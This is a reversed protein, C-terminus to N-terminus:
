QADGKATAGGLRVLLGEAAAQGLKEISAAGLIELVSIEVGLRQRSWNRLEIAVLSDIGVASLPQKLDLEEIPRMLFSFLTAGIEQALFLVSSPENLTGPNSNVTVLFERLGENSNGLDGASTTELNRYLGMRIDRKWICRNADAAIPMTMRLGLGIQSDNIYGDMSSETARAKPASKAIALELSDLLDQEKLCYAATAKLQELHAPEQSVWGVDEIISIDLVSAPLGKGHRYQAFADLFTNAAAYNAQGWHGLLGSFSSFLVFFELSQSAFAEHLNWTGQIKPLNADQWEEYTMNPFSADRLVMSMQLVGSIPYEAQRIVSQVDALNAVSGATIQVTCGAANMEEVFAAHDAGKGGSRSLYIFHRAGHEAMWTSISRGLGGLGGVLLYSVDPRLSLRNNGRSASLQSNDTPFKIVLKGMHQGKQMYRLADEIQAADFFKIPRIPQIAGQRFYEMTREMLRKIVFPRKEAIPAFDVGYFTRNAEFAEMALQGQGIFDRKGIEVMKGFEAVCKWSAHLLDGSLSNLVVDVGTGNTERMVDPLFSSNRSNFIHNRPISFTRMLYEVKEDTGVTAFIKAGVMSCIHIAAIGIGGCASQILVTQDKEIRALDLLSHIVTTYVCPMTAADEFSLNDPIKACLASSTKLVTSYSDGGIIAVRDGVKFSADPGVGTVIGACECGLGNGDDVNGDVVGMSILIDKFNMGAAKVKVSVEDGTLKIEPRQVWRLTKLLGRKGIELTKPAEADTGASLENSVSIWHFRPINIVGKVIAYEFDPDIEQDKSRNQFKGLVDLIRDFTSEDQIDDIELTALDISLENRVSRALGLIQAYQPDSSEVQAPRTLWLMGSSTLSTLYGQLSRFQQESVDTLFAKGELDLVSIIDQDAKPTDSLSSFDVMFGHKTLSNVLRTAAPCNPDTTLVSVKRNVKPEVLPSAIITANTHYPMEEDYIVAEAGAFGAQALEKDWRQPSVYPEEPRGDPEGLWWGPLVGVIFNFWKADSCLEQLLLKGKPQLLKRVNVLTEGLSPTAHLVNTAIILDYSGLEYGQEAPDQGIDLVSYEMGQVNRFREKAKVFFGASIDTYTYSYFMREGFASVLGDLILATTAGTGAGIELIRLNPKNHSLLGLFDNFDWFEVVLDYIKRLKEGEMLLDLAEAEGKFIAESNEFICLIANGVAAADSAEVEKATAEILSLRETSSLTFLSSADDVAEYGHAKAQQVHTSLWKKFKELHPLASPPLDALRRTCEISCLLLLKQVAPYCYKISKRTRLLDKSDLFAIDPKWQLRVGAHPDADVGAADDAAPALHLNRLELVVENGVTAFGNGHVAGRATVTVSSSLQLKLDTKPRKMYIEGFYAPLPMQVFDRSQGKWAAVSFLQIAFDTTTPHLQYVSDNPNVTNTVKAVAFNEVPHTSIDEMGQFKPGYNIGVKSMTQYWRTSSVKRPLDTVKPPESILESDSKGARVQGTCHKTWSTGNHSSVVFEYWASDLSTTLRHPRLSFLIETTTQEHLIMAAKVSMNRITFDETGTVQRIAEGAMAIYAAGPFVIDQNIVHDRIWSADELCLMNRWTPELTSGEFVQCGLLDHRPFKRTRWERSLRGEDWFSEDHHWPYTPLNTLISGGPNVSNLDVPLGKVFLNGAVTLLSTTDDQGRVMTPVYLADPQHKKFIQRLPGALASHPGIELFLNSSTEQKLLKEMTTAFLVPSELNKRWYSANLAGKESIVKNLVTSFFPVEPRSSSVHPELLKQYQEAVETMHHSHYAMDVRLRRAFIDPHSAKIKQIVIDIQNGDGSITTSEPSNECAITVGDTLFGAVGERSIGVAAMAGIRGQQKTVLGRFYAAIIAEGSTIAGSAYAAALEGSSHGIVQSPSINWTRLLNVIAIQVATCLPQSFEAQDLRSETKSKLLERAITWHPPYPLKSLVGDLYQFDKRVSPFDILLKVGMTAWQAGQGTFVFTVAPTTSPTRSPASFELPAVGDGVAFSRYPLRERRIGMTYALDHANAGGIGFANISVREHRDVPWPTADTPVQLKAQKFPISQPNPNNFKINPPITKKELALVAKICSTIGSAGESHGMNPKASTIYVGKEGFVNGIATTELPDGTATGTGHCEVFATQCFDHIGASEYTRRILAEHSEPSPHSLGPTKGDCNTGTSRVIARIPNGDRIAEDLRKVYLANIAEARAYGDATADFTKCSGDASLVGQESMAITMTPSMLLNAGGVIASTIEGSRIAECAMNLCILASSCATKVTISPGKFDYEYSVRNALVFDGAGTIRYVGFDQTDKAHLDLWDEGFVGIYCGIDKGRWDLEGANELCERTVELLLRHQPDLKELENRTISFFSTDFQRLDNDDLFYGYETKVSGRKNSKSYFADVNWRDAPVRKRQDKKNILTDWLDEETGIGGPLRMGMGVIAIPVDDQVHAGNSTKQSSGNTGNSAHSTGNVDSTKQEKEPIVEEAKKVPVINDEVHLPGGNQVAIPSM